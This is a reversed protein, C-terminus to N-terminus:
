QQPSSATVSLFPDAGATHSVWTLSSCARTSAAMRRGAETDTLATETYCVRRSPYIFTWLLQGSLRFPCLPIVCQLVMGIYIAHLYRCVQVPSSAVLRSYVWACHRCTYRGNKRPFFRPLFAIFIPKPVLKASWDDCVHLDWCMYCFLHFVLGVFASFINLHKISATKHVLSLDFTARVRAYTVPICIVIVLSLTAVRVCGFRM